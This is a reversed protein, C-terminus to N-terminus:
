RGVMFISEKLAARHEPNNLDFAVQAQYGKGMRGIVHNNRIDNCGRICRDCLICASHDVAIVLSTGDTLLAAPRPEFPSHDIGFKKALAESDKGRSIAVVRYGFKAAFQVGLHGLGGIGLVAVLDGPGAGSHRLANFTTIGACLLPAAAVVDLGAPFRALAEQRAVLYEAYGGDSSIGTIHLRTCNLFDGRRCPDCEFCHGGHWGVGVRQGPQWATVGSGVADIRGVVEHGPM